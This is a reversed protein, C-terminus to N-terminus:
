TTRPSRPSPVLVRDEGQFPQENRGNFFFTVHAYKETEAIHLQRMKLDSLVRALPVRVEMAQYAVHVNLDEAYRTM